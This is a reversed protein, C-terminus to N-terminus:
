WWHPMNRKRPMASLCANSCFGHACRKPLVAHYRATQSNKWSRAEIAATVIRFDHDATVTKGIMNGSVEERKIFRMLEM